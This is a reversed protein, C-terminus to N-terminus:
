REATESERHSIEGGQFKLQYIKSYEFIKYKINM